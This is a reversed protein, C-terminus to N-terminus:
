YWPTYEQSMLKLGCQFRETELGPLGQKPQLQSWGCADYFDGWTSADKVSLSSKHIFVMASDSALLMSVIDVM